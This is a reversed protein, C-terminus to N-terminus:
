RAGGTTDGTGEPFTVTVSRQGPLDVAVPDSTVGQFRGQLVWHGQRDLVVKRPASGLITGAPTASNPPALVVMLTVPPLTAPAVAVDVIYSVDNGGVPASSTRPQRLLAFYALAGALLLVLLLMLLRRWSRRAPRDDLEREILIPAAPPAEELSGARYRAGPPLDKVFGPSSDRPDRRSPPIGPDSHLTIPDPEEPQPASAGERTERAPGAAQPPPEFVAPELDLVFDSRTASLSRTDRGADGEGLLELEDFSGRRAAPETPLTLEEFNRPPPTIAGGSLRRVVGYLETATPRAAPDSVVGRELASRVDNSLNGGGLGLLSACVAYVDAPLGPHGARAEPATVAPDAPTWPVGYGEVLVHGDAYLFRSSRLDGHIVGARAADRVARLTHLAFRDDVVAEGTAVLGYHPSFAAVLQGVDDDFTSALIGPINESEVTGVGARPRDPFTYILVPLGTLPDLGRHTSVDGQQLYLELSQYRHVQTM